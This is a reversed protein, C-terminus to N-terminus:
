FRMIQVNSIDTVTGADLGALQQMARPSGSDLAIQGETQLYDMVDATTYGDLTGDWVTQLWVEGGEPTTTTGVQFRIQYRDFPGYVDAADAWPAISLMSSDIAQGVNARGFEAAANSIDRAQGAVFNMDLIGAGLSEGPAMGLQERLGNWIQANNMGQSALGQISNFYPLLNAIGEATPQSRGAM